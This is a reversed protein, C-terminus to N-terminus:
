QIRSEYSELFKTAECRPTKSSSTNEDRGVFPTQPSPRYILEGVFAKM